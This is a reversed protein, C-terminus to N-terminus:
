STLKSLIEKEYTLKNDKLRIVFIIKSQILQIFLVEDDKNIREAVDFIIGGNIKGKDSVIKFEKDSKWFITSTTSEQTEGTSPIFGKFYDYLKKRREQYSKKDANSLRFTIIYGAMKLIEM